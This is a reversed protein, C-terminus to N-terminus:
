GLCSIGTTDVSLVNGITDEGMEIMLLRDLGLAVGACDPMGQKLAQLFDEDIPITELGQEVRMLNDQEFRQQQQRADTLESFGNALEIDNYFLEFREAFLSNGPKLRALSAQSAPYDYVFTYGTFRKAIVQSILLDLCEDRKLQKANIGPVHRSACDQCEEIDAECVDLGLLNNFSDFYSVRHISIYKESLYEILQGLQDMLEFYGFGLSYWELLTFELHHRRGQEHDRFAHCIQYISGSGAALLRKMNFEPSTQLYFLRNCANAKVSQIHVDTNTSVGLLPTDVELYGQADFFARIRQYMRARLLLKEQEIQM